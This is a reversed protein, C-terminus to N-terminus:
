KAAALLTRKLENYNASDSLDHVTLNYVAIRTNDPALIVVDRWNAAWLGWVNTTTEDQLWPLVRGQCMGANGSELGAANVGLLRVLIRPHAANIEAQM